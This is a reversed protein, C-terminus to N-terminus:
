GRSRRVEGCMGAVGGNRRSKKKWPNGKRTYLGHIKGEVGAETNLSNAAPERPRQRTHRRWQNPFRTASEGARSSVDRHLRAYGCHYRSSFVGSEFCPM